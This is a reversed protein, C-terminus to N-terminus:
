GLRRAITLQATKTLGTAQFRATFTVTVPRAVQVTGINFTVTSQGAGVTVTSPFTVFQSRDASIEIIYGAAPAAQDLTITAVANNGGEVLNPNIAFSAITPPVVNLTTSVSFQGRTATISVAQPGAVPFTNVAFNASNQGGPIFVTVPVSAVTSNSSGLSVILGGAPAPTSITVTGSIAQGGIVTSQSLTIGVVAPALVTMNASATAGASSSATITVPTDAGVTRADVTFTTSSQGAPITVTAPVSAVASSSNLSLTIGGAPAVEGNALTITATADIPGIVSQPNIVLAMGLGRVKLAKPHRNYGQKDASITTWITSPVGKTRVQFTASTAGPPITVSQPVIDAAAPNQNVLPITFGAPSAPKSIFVTGQVITGGLVDYSSLTLDTIQNAQISLTGSTSTTGLTGTVTCTTDNTTLAHATATFTAESDGATFVVKTPISIPEGTQSLIVETGTVAEGDLRITGTTSEGGDVTNPNFILSVVQAPLLRLPQSKTVGDFTATVNTSQITAVGKTKVTFTATTQGAAVVVVPAPFTIVDPRDTGLSVSAGGAPAPAALTVQGAVENGGPIENISLTMTEMWPVVSLRRVLFDGDMDARVDCFTPQLVRSTFVQFTASTLGEPITVRIASPGGEANFRAVNPQLCRLTITKGGPPAPALLTVVGNSVSGLGGPIREPTLTLTNMIPLAVRMKILFGDSGTSFSKFALQTIYPTPITNTTFGGVWISDGRDSGLCTVFDNGPILPLQQNNGIYTSFILGTGTSNLVTFFGEGHFGLPPPPNYQTDIADSTLPVGPPNTTSFTGGIYANGRSDVKIAATSAGSSNMATSYIIQNGAANLKTVFIQGPAMLESFAGRTRPFNFSGCNGSIYLNGFADLATDAISDDDSGGLVGSYILNGSTAYRRLFGDSKRLLSGNPWLNTTTKFVTSTPSLIVNSTSTLNGSVYLTGDAGFEVDSITDDLTSGTYQSRAADVVGLTKGAQDYQRYLIFGDEGGPKPAALEAITGPTSGAFVLEVAGTADGVPRVDFGSITNEANEDGFRGVLEEPTDIKPDLVNVSDAAFRVYWGIPGDRELKQEYLGSTLNATDLVFQNLPPQFNVDTGAFTVNIPTAPLPGGTVTLSFTPPNNAPIAALAELAAQVTAADADFPIPATFETTTSNKPIYGIRFTGNNVRFWWTNNAFQERIRQVLGQSPNVIQATYLNPRTNIIVNPNLEAGKAEMCYLPFNTPPGADGPLNLGAPTGTVAWQSAPANPMANLTNQVTTPDANFQIFNSEEGDVSIMYRGFTPVPQTALTTWCTAFDRPLRFSLSSGAVWVSGYQDVRVFKATDERNGGLYAVYRVDYFDGQLVAIYADLIGKMNVGYPGVNIPFDPAETEGTFYTGGRGDSTVGLVADYATAGLDTVFGGFYTGYVIPDIILNKSKDYEGVKFSITDMDTKNFKIPVPVRRGNSMQYAFLGTQVVDGVSTKLVMTTDNIVQVDYLGNMDVSVVSPDAGPKVILDYRPSNQDVYVRLDIGSYLGTIKAEQYSKAKAVSNRQSKDFSLYDTKLSAENVGVSQASSLAGNFKMEYVHGLRYGDRGMGEHRHVDFVISDNTLWVQQNGIWTMFKARSNWQGKNERFRTRAAQLPTGPKVPSVVPKGPSGIPQQQQAQADTSSVALMAACTITSMVAAFKRGRTVWM